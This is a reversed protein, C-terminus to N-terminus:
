ALRDAHKLEVRQAAVTRKMALGYANEIRNLKWADEHSTDDSFWLVECRDSLPESVHVKFCVHDFGSAHIFKDLVADRIMVTATLDNLVYIDLLLGHM